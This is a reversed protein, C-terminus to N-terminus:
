LRKERKGNFGAPYASPIAYGVICLDHGKQLLPMAFQWTRIGTGYVKIDNEFPMPSMGLIMIKKSKMQIYGDM